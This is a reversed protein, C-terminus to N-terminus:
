AFVKGAREYQRQMKEMVYNAIEENSQGEQTYVNIVPAFTGTAVESVATKIDKLLNQHGYVIESGNGDGFGKNGIVTPDSILWPNNYAKAYWDVTFSPISVLGGIDIWEWSFHPMKIHPFSWEFDFLGKIDDVRDKLWDVADGIVGTDLKPLSWDFNVFGKIGDFIGGATDKATGVADTALGPLSWTFDAFGKIKDIAGSVTDRASALKDSASQKLSDFSNRANEKLGNFKEAASSKLEDIKQKAADSAEGFKQATDSKFKDWKEGAKAAIEGAKAKIKDWNKILLAVAAVIGVIIAGGILFPAAAALVGGIAPILAAIGAGGTVTGIAGTVLGIAGSVSTVFGIVTSLIGLLPGIAAIVGVITLITQQQGDDLGKWWDTVEKVKDALASLGEAIIPGAVEVLEAGAVSLDNMTTKFKDLPDLTNNFTDEVSGGCDKVSATLDNFDLSGNKVAEYIQAGSKGFLDYSATLGDVDGTGNLITNQLDGLAQNLPIGDEAANKLAKQMGGMVTNMDAGSMEAKGMFEAAQDISVGMANFAGANKVLGGMLADMGIGTAQGVSNMRDLLAGADEAGLGFASLAKQTSDVAGSVDTENLTAFEVFRQSLTELKSGTSGFRTNVEGIAAGATAFDTPIRSAINKMSAGMADMAEGTAGTKTAITDLGDDVGKWGAVAAAGLATIPVTVGKTMKDGVTGMANGITEAIKGGSAKGAKEAEPALANTISGSIGEASAVIQVYAQGLDAM